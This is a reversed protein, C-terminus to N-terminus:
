PGSTTAARPNQQAFSSHATGAAMVLQHCGSRCVRDRPGAARRAQADHLDVQGAVFTPEAETLVQQSCRFIM